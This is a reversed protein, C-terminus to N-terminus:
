LFNDIDNENFSEFLDGESYNFHNKMIYDFGHIWLYSILGAFMIMSM